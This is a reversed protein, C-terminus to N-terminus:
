MYDKRQLRRFVQSCNESKKGVIISDSDTSPRKNFLGNDTNVVHHSAGSDAIWINEELGTPGGYTNLIINKIENEIGACAVNNNENIQEDCHDAKHGKKRCRGCTPIIWGETM